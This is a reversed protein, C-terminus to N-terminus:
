EELLRELYELEPLDRFSEGLRRRIIELIERARQMDIQDPVQVRSGPDLGSNAQPRGLPDEPPENQVQQGQQGQGPQQQQQQMMEALQQALSRASDRMAQLAGSQPEVAQSPEGQELSRNADGMLGEAEGLQDGPSMGQDQMQNMLEQLRQQLDSQQQQLDGLAQQLEDPSMNGYRGGAGPQMQNDPV